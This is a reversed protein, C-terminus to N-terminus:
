MIIYLWLPITAAACLTSLALEGALFDSDTDMQKSIVYIGVSLPSAMLLVATGLAAPPMHPFFWRGLLLTFLPTLLLKGFAGLSMLALRGRIYEFRLAAGIAILALPMGMNAIMKATDLVIKLLDPLLPLSLVRQRLPTENLILSTVLGFVAALVIPNLLVARFQRALMGPRAHGLSLILVGGVIYVPMTFANIVGAYTLGIDGFASMALPFGLYSLNGLYSGVVVPGRLRPPLNKTGLWFLVVAFFSALLTISIVSIDLLARFDQTAVGLYILIPLSFLYVFRSVFVHAADTLLGKRRILAGFGILLFLPLSITLVQLLQSV